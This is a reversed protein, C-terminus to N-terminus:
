LTREAETVPVTAPCDPCAPDLRVLEVAEERKRPPGTFRAALASGGLALAAAAIMAARFTATSADRLERSQEGAQLPSLSPDDSRADFVLGVVLGLLAM